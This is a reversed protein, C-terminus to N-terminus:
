RLACQPPSPAPGPCGYTPKVSFKRSQNTSSRNQRPVPNACPHCSRRVTALCAAARRRPRRRSHHLRLGAGAWARPGVVAGGAGSPYLTATCIVGGSARRHRSRPRAAWPQRPPRRPATAARTGTRATPSRCSPPVASWSGPTGKFSRAAAQVRVPRHARPLTRNLAVRASCGRTLTATGRSRGIRGRRVSARRQVVSCTGRSSRARVLQGQASRQNGQQVSRQQHM